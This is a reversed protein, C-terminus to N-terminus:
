QTQATIQVYLVVVQPLLCHALIAVGPQVCHVSIHGNEVHADELKVVAGNVRGGFSGVKTIFIVPTLIVFVRRERVGEQSM